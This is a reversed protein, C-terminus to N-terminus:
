APHYAPDLSCAGLYIDHRSRYRVQFPWQVERPLTVAPFFRLNSHRESLFELCGGAVDRLSAPWAGRNMVDLLRAAVGSEIVSREM